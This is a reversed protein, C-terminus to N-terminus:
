RRRHQWKGNETWGLPEGKDGTEMCKGSIVELDNPHNGILQIVNQQSLGNIPYSIQKKDDNTKGESSQGLDLGAIATNDIYKVKFVPKPAAEAANQAPEAPAESKGCAALLLASLLIPFAKM